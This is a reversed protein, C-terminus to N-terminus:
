ELKDIDKESWTNMAGCCDCEIKGQKQEAKITDGLLCGCNACHFQVMKIKPPKTLKVQVKM